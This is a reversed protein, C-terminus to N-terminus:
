TIRENGTKNISNCICDWVFTEKLVNAFCVAKSSLEEACELDMSNM